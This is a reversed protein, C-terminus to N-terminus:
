NGWYKKDIMRYGIAEKLDEECIEEHRELDAITRAVKLIKFYSRATLHFVEYAQKMLKECNSSLKCYEKLEEKGMQSNTSFLQTAEEHAQQIKAVKQTKKMGGVKEVEEYANISALVVNAVSGQMKNCLNKAETFNGAKIAAKVQATFKALSMKGFASRLAFYREVGLAIVTCLLTLIVPVVIGGKYVTGLMNLPHGEKDGNAFNASDGLFYEYFCYAVVFCIVIIVWANKIGGFGSKKPSAAKTTAM